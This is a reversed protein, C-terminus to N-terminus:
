EFFEPPLEYLPVEPATRDSLRCRWRRLGLMALQGRFEGAALGLQLQCATMWLEGARVHRRGTLSDVILVPTGIRRRPEYPDRQRLVQILAARGEPEASHGNLVDCLRLHHWVLDTLEDEERQAEFADAVACMAAYVRAADGNNTIDPVAKGHTAGITLRVIDAPKSAQSERVFRIITGNGLKIDLPSLDRGGRRIVGRVAMASPLKLAQNLYSMAEAAEAPVPGLKARSRRSNGGHAKADQAVRSKSVWRALSEIENRKLPPRCLEDNLAGGIEVLRRITTVGQSAETLLRAKLFGHRRGETVVGDIILSEANLSQSEAAIEIIREPVPLLLASPGRIWEYPRGTVHHISPPCVVFGNTSRIEGGPISINGLGEMGQHYFHYGDPERGTRAQTSEQQQLQDFFPCEDPQDIDAVTPGPPGTMVGLQADPHAEFARVLDGTDTIRGKVTGGIPRKNLALGLPWGLAILEFGTQLWISQTSM